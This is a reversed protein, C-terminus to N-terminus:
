PLFDFRQDKAATRSQRRTEQTGPLWMLFDPYADPIIINVDKGQSQLYRSLALSSGLADGDPSRHCTIIINQAGDIIQRLENIQTSNIENM